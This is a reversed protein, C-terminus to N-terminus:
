LDCDFSAKATTECAIRFFGSVQECAKLAAKKKLCEVPTNPNNKIDQVAVNNQSKSILAQVKAMMEKNQQARKMEVEYTTNSDIMADILQSKVGLKKLQSIEDFTFNKYASQTAKIKSALTSAGFGKKTLEIINSVKLGEPGVSLLNLTLKETEPLQSVLSPYKIAYKRRKAPTNLFAMIKKLALVRRKKAPNTNLFSEWKKLSPNALVKKFRLEEQQDKEELRKIVLGVYVNRPYKKKFELLSDVSNTNGYLEWERKDQPTIYSTSITNLLPKSYTYGKLLPLVNEKGLIPKSQSFPYYSFFNYTPNTYGKLSMNILVPGNDKESVFLKMSVSDVFGQKGEKSWGMGSVSETATKDASYITELYHPGYSLEVRCFTNNSLTCVRKNDIWLNRANYDSANLSFFFVKHGSNQAKIETLAADREKDSGKPVTQGCSGILLLILTNVLFKKM